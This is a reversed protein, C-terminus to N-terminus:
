SAPSTETLDASPERLEHVTRVGAGQAGSMAYADVLSKRERHDTGAGNDREADDAALVTGDVLEIPALADPAQAPLFRAVIVAGLALAAAGLMFAISMGDVFARSAADFLARGPEGGLREAVSAAAGIQDSAAATADAPLGTGTLADRVRPGYISGFVSGLVAVGLAGGLERTTDNVASGVGAKA